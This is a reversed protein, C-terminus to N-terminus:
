RNEGVIREVVPPKRYLYNVWSTSNADLKSENTWVELEQLGFTEQALSSIDNRAYYYFKRGDVSASDMGDKLSFYIVGGARTATVLRLVADQLAIWPLHVLSACAWVGDFEEVFTIENFALHRCYAFPYQRCYRVM